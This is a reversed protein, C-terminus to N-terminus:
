TVKQYILSLRLVRTHNMSRPMGGFADLFHKQHNIIVQLQMNYAKSKLSYYNTVFGLVKLKQIHIQAVDIAGQIGLL